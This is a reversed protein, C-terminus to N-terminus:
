HNGRDFLECIPIVDRFGKNSQNQQGDHSISGFVGGRDPHRHFVLHFERYRNTHAAGNLNRSENNWQQNNNPPAGAMLKTKGEGM